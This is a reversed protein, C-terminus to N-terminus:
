ISTGGWQSHSNLRSDGRASLDLQHIILRAISKASFGQDEALQAYIDQASIYEGVERLHLSAEADELEIGIEQYVEYETMWSPRAGLWIVIHADEDRMSQSPRLYSGSEGNVSGLPYDEVFWKFRQMILTMTSRSSSYKNSETSTSDIYGLSDQGGGGLGDRLLTVEGDVGANAISQFLTPILHCIARRLTDIIPEECHPQYVHHCFLDTLVLIVRVRARRKSPKRVEGFRVSLDSDSIKSLLLAKSPAERGAFLALDSVIIRSPDSPLVDNLVEFFSGQPFRFRQDDGGKGAKAKVQLEAQEDRTMRMIRLAGEDLLPLSLPRKSKLGADMLYWRYWLRDVMKAEVGRRWNEWLEEVSPEISEENVNETNLALRELRISDRINVQVPAHFFLTKLAIHRSEETITKLTLKSRLDLYLQKLEHSRGRKPNASFILGQQYLVGLVEFVLLPPASIGEIELARLESATDNILADVNKTKLSYVSLEEVLGKIEKDLRASM